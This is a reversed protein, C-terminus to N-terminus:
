FEDFPNEQREGRVRDIARRGAPTLGLRHLLGALQAMEAAKLDATRMRAVLRCALEVALRDSVALLGAGGTVLEVWAAAQDADLGAPPEPDIPAEVPQQIHREPRFTGAALHAATSKRPAPM